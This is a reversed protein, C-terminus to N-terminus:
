ATALIPLTPVDSGGAPEQTVGLGFGTPDVDAFLVRVTGEDDPRFIGASVAVGNDQLVWLEYTASAGLIPVNRGELVLSGRSPSYVAEFAVGLEGELFRSQADASEIIAEIEDTNSGRNQVAVFGGVLVAVAAAAALAPMFRSRRRQDLLVVPPPVVLDADAPQEQATGAIAGLVDAKLSAPPDERHIQQIAAATSLDASLEASAEVDNAIAADLERAEAETLEGLAALAILEDIRQNTM